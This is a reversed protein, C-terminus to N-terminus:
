VRIAIVTANDKTHEKTQELIYEASDEEKLAQIYIDKKNPIYDHVGDSTLIIMDGKMLSRSSYIPNAGIGVAHRLYHGEGQDITLDQVDQNRVLTVRTDGTHVINCNFIHDPFSENVIPEFWCVTATTGRDDYYAMLKRNLKHFLKQVSDVGPLESIFYAELADKVEKSALDGNAHGGLGDFIGFANHELDAFFDDQQYDRPGQITKFNVFM